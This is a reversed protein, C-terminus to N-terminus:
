EFFKLYKKQVQLFTEHVSKFNCGEAESIARESMGDMRMEMRRRQIPTLTSLFAEVREEQEAQEILELPSPSEDAITDFYSVETGEDDIYILEPVENRMVKVCDNRYKHNMEDVIEQPTRKQIFPKVADPAENLRLQYDALIMKEAELDTIEFKVFKRDRMAEGHVEQLYYIKM